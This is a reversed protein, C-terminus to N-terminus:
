TPSLRAQAAGGPPPESRAHWKLSLAPREIFHWSVAALALAILSASGCLVLPEVDPYLAIVSQQVPFGYLFLGFSYDREGAWPLPPLRYAIWYVAHVLALTAAPGFWVTGHTAIALLVLSFMGVHSVALHERWHAWLAGGVFVMSLARYHLPDPKGIWWEWAGLSLFAIGILTFAWRQQAAGILSMVALYGYWRMELGLSWLSGNVVGQIPNNSFLGPLPWIFSVPLLNGLVHERTGPHTVYEALPLTGLAPGLAMVCLLLCVWYAPFIRLARNRVFRWFGPRRILSSMVLYGSMAFFLYVAFNGAKFGPMWRAILDISGTKATLDHSHGYIVLLAAIHRLPLFNDLRANQATTASIPM